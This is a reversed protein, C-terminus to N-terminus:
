QFPVIDSKKFTSNGIRTHQRGTDVHERCVPPTGWKSLFPIQPPPPSQIPVREGLYTCLYIIFLYTCLYIFFNLFIFIFSSLSRKIM